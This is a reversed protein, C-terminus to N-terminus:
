PQHYSAWSRYHAPGLCSDTWWPKLICVALFHIINYKNTNLKKNNIVIKSIFSCRQWLPSMEEAPGEGGMKGFGLILHSTGDPYGRNMHGTPAYPHCKPPYGVWSMERYFTTSLWQCGSAGVRSSKLYGHIVYIIFLRFLHCTISYKVQLSFTCGAADDGLYILKDWTCSGLSKPQHPQRHHSVELKHDFHEDQGLGINVSSCNVCQGNNQGPNKWLTSWFRAATGLPLTYIWM